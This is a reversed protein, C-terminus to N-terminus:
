VGAVPKGDSLAAADHVRFIEYDTGEGEIQVASVSRPALPITCVLDLRLPM